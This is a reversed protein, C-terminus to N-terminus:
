STKSASPPPSVACEMQPYWDASYITLDLGELSLHRTAPHNRVPFLAVEHSWRALQFKGSEWSLQSDLISGLTAIIGSQPEMKCASVQWISLILIWSSASHPLLNYRQCLVIPWSDISKYCKSGDHWCCLPSLTKTSYLTLWIDIYNVLIWCILYRVTFGTGQSSKSFDFIKKFDAFIM